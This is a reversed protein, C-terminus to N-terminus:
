TKRHFLLQNELISNGDVKTEKGLKRGEEEKRGSMSSLPHPHQSTPFTISFILILPSLLSHTAIQTVQLMKDNRKMDRKRKEERKSEKKEKKGKRQAIVKSPYVLSVM